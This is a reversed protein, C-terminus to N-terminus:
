QGEEAGAAATRRERTSEKQLARAAIQVASWSWYRMAEEGSRQYKRYRIRAEALFQRAISGPPSLRTALALFQIYRALRPDTVSRNAIM